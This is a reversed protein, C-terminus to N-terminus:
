SRHGEGNLARQRMELLHRNRAPHREVNQKLNSSSQYELQIQSRLDDSVM